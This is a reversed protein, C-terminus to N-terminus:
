NKHEPHFFALISAILLSLKMSSQVVIRMLVKAEFTEGPVKEGSM